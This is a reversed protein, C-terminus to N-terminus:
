HGGFKVVPQAWCRCNFDDGPNGRREPEGPETVIPPDDFRYTTGKKSANGLAEHRARVPHAVSGAIHHWYYEHVGADDYREKAYTNVLTKTEQRAILKARGISCQAEHQIGKVLNSYRTGVEVSQAVRARLTSVQDSILGKISEHASDKWRDVLRVRQEENLSPTLTVASVNQKFQKETKKIANDFIKNVAVRGSVEEPDIKSLYKDVMKMQNKYADRSLSILQTLEPEMEDESLRFVSLRSDWEAGADRLARTLGADLPGSFMGNKYTLNGFRLAEGLKDVDGSTM